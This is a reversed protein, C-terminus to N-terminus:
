AVGIALYPLNFINLKKSFFGNKKVRANIKTNEIAPKTSIKGLKKLDARGISPKRVKYPKLSLPSALKYGLLTAIMAMGLENAREM